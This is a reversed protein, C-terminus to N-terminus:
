RVWVALVSELTGEYLLYRGSSLADLPLGESVVKRKGM